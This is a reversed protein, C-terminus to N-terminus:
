AKLLRLPQISRISNETKLDADSKDKIDTIWLQKDFGVEGGHLTNQGDNQSISYEKEDIFVKGSKIRNAVRGVIAGCYNGSDIYAQPTDYGLAVDILVGNKDPVNISVISAGLDMLEVYAGSNNQLRYKQVDRGDSLNGFFSQTITM